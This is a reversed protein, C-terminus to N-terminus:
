DAQREVRYLVEALFHLQRKVVGESFTREGFTIWSSSGPARGIDQVTALFDLTAGTEVGFRSLELVLAINKVSEILQKDVETITLSGMRAKMSILSGFIPESWLSNPASKATVVSIEKRTHHLALAIHSAAEDYNASDILEQAKVLESEAESAKLFSLLSLRELDVNFVNAFAAVLFDEAKGVNSRASGVELADGDHVRNRSLHLSRIGGFLSHLSGIVPDNSDKLLQLYNDFHLLKNSTALSYDSVITALTLEVALDALWVARMLDFDVPSGHVLRRAEFFTDRILLLRRRDKAMCLGLVQSFQEGLASM